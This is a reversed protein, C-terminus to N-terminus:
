FQRICWASSLGDKGAAAATGAGNASFDIRWADNANAETSSWLFSPDTPSQWIHLIANQLYMQNLEYLSPLYYDAYCPEGATGPNDCPTVGDAKASLNVCYQAAMIALTYPQTQLAAFASQAGVIIPTNTAGAGIGNGTSNDIINASSDNEAAGSWTKNEGYNTSAVLGHTGSSDVYFVIGGLAQQGVTYTPTVPTTSIKSNVYDMLVKIQTQVYAVSAPNNNAAYSQTALTSCFVSSLLLIKKNM